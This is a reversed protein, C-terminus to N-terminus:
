LRGFRGGTLRESFQGTFHGTFLGTVHGTFQETFHGTFQGTVHGTVQGTFHGTFQGAFQGTCSCSSLTTLKAKTPCKTKVTGLMWVNRAGGQLPNLSVGESDVVAPSRKFENRM